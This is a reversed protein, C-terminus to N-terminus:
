PAHRKRWAWAFGAFDAESMIQIVAIVAAVVPLLCSASFLSIVGQKRFGTVLSNIM